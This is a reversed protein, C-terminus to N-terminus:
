KDKKGPWMGLWRFPLAKQNPSIADDELLSQRRKEYAFLTIMGGAIVLMTVGGATMMIFKATATYNNAEPDWRFCTLFAQDMFSGVKGDSAEVLSLRLKKSDYTTGTLYRSITADGTAVTLVSPHGFENQSPIYFYGFGTADTLTQITAPDATLFRWGDADFQANNEKLLNKVKERTERSHEPTEGPDISINLVIFDDGMDLETGGVTQAIQGLMLGCVVPCRNYGLNIIVPRGDIFFDSLKVTNGQEDILELDTPVTDGLKQTVGVDSALQETWPNAQNEGPTSEQVQQNYRAEAPLPALAAIGLAAAASWKLVRSTFPMSIMPPVNVIADARSIGAQPRVNRTKRWNPSRQM